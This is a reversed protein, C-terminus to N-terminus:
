SFGSRTIDNKSTKHREIMETRRNLKLNTSLRVSPHPLSKTTFILVHFEFTHINVRKVPETVLTTFVSIENQQKYVHQKFLPKQFVKYLLM